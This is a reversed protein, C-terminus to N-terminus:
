LISVFVRKKYKDSIISMGFDMAFKLSSPCNIGHGEKHRVPVTREGNKVIRVAEKPTFLTLYPFGFGEADCFYTFGNIQSREDEMISEHILGALKCCDDKNYVYPDFQGPRM